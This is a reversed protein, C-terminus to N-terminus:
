EASYEDEAAGEGKMIKKVDLYLSVLAGFLRILHFTNTYIDVYLGADVIERNWDPEINVSYEKLKMTNDMMGLLTYVFGNAAGVALGTQMADDTGISAEIAIRKIKAMRSVLMKIIRYIDDSMMNILKYIKKVPKLRKLNPHEEEEEKEEEEEYTEAIKRKKSLYIPLKFFLFKGYLETGEYGDSYSITLVGHIPILFLIALVALISLIIYVALM